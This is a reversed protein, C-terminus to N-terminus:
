YVEDSHMSHKQLLYRLFLDKINFVYQGLRALPGNTEDAFGRFYLISVDCSCPVERADQLFASPTCAFSFNAFNVKSLQNAIPQAIIHSFSLSSERTLSVDRTWLSLGYMYVGKMWELILFDQLM